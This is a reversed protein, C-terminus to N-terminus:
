PYLKRTVWGDNEMRFELRDHLRFPM